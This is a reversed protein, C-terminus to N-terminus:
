SNADSSEKSLKEIVARLQSLGDMDSADYVSLKQVDPKIDNPFWDKAPGDLAGRMARLSVGNKKTDVIQMWVETMSTRGVPSNFQAGRLRLPFTLSVADRPVELRTTEGHRVVRLQRRRRYHVAFAIAGFLATAAGFMWERGAIEPPPEQVSFVVFCVAFILAIGFSLGVWSGNKKTHVIAVHLEEDVHPDANQRYATM